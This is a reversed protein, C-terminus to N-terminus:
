IVLIPTSENIFNENKILEANARTSSFYTIDSIIKSIVINCLFPKM